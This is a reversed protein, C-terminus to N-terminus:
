DAEEHLVLDHLSIMVTVLALTVRLLPLLRDGSDFHEFELPTQTNTHTHTHTHTHINM